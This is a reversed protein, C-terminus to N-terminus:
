DDLEIDRFFYKGKADRTVQVVVPRNVMPGIVDDVAEGVKWVRLHEDGVTVELWDQDLHLGRLLGQLTEEPLDAVAMKPSAQRRLSQTITKRSAPLLVVNERQDATRVEMEDFTKGTPTLNRTLKLFIPLYEKDSVVQPLANDPDEVSARLIEIFHSSIERGTPPAEGFLVGQRVEQVAVAFQYSGPAAQFLWPRCNESIEQNPAGRKRLPLGKLLEAVRYFMSQVTQVKEVILDLPAGGRLVEGGKVSVIVQGPAFAVDAKERVADNWITQLLPKLQEVAFTPLLRSSLYQYVEQEAHAAQHAKYWLSVASVATIGITRAKSPDLAKVARSEMDAAQAYLDKARGADGQKRAVEAEAALTESQTHLELWDM